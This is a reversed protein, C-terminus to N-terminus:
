RRSVLVRRPDTALIRMPVGDKAFREYESKPMLAYGAPLSTWQAIWTAEDPIGLAPELDLGMAFEDRFAVLTTTRGLYFPVTQDYSGVQFFPLKRDLPAGQANKAERLIDYGSRTARFVDHGIFLVQFGVLTGLAVTAIGATKMREGGRALLGCAAVGTAAIIGTGLIAWPKYAHFLAAPTRDDAYRDVLPEFGVCVGAFVVIAGIALPALLWAIRRPAMAALAPGLVLMLAPFMPLIYSPLKSGSLSFFVFVFAAWVLCFAQWRFGNAAGPASWSSRWTWPAVSLWPLVGAAFLPMFYWWAGTRRHETTLFRRFHENVFFFEAFGPNALSVLAFWPVSILAFVALGPVLHLRRWPAFDRTALSYLVLTAGPIVLGVLGKTLVALAVEAWAALMWLRVRGPPLGDRNALLFSSLASALLFELLADLTTFHAIGVHWVCGALALGAYAGATPSALRAATFAVVLITLFGAVAPALRATWQDTEFLRYLAATVWYQLPPKEFYKIGNLRPTLWDGSVAMERAIEAYRGEDPHQLKRLDLASFWAFAVIAAVIAWASRPLSALM